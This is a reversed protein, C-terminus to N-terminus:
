YDYVVFRIELSTQEENYHYVKFQSATQTKRVGPVVLSYGSYPISPNGPYQLDPYTYSLLVIYKDSKMPTIFTVTKEVVSTDAVSLVNFSNYETFVGTNKNFSGWAKAIRPQVAEASLTPSASLTQWSALHSYRISDNIVDAKLTRTNSTWTLDVTSTDSANLTNTISSLTCLATGLNQINTNIISRSDGICDTGDILTLPVGCSTTLSTAM